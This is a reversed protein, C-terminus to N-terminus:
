PVDRSTLVKDEKLWCGEPRDNLYSELYMPGVRRRDQGLGRM